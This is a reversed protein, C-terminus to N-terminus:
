FDFFDVVKIHKYVICAISNIFSEEEKKTDKIEPKKERKPIDALLPKGCIICFKDSGKVPNGCYPCFKPM